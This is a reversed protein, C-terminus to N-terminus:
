KYFIVASDVLKFNFNYKECILELVEYASTGKVSLSVKGSLDSPLIYNITEKNKSYQKYANNLVYRITTALQAEQFDISPFSTSKLKEM